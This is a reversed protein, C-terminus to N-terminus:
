VGGGHEYFEANFLRDIEVDRQAQTWAAAYIPAAGPAPGWLDSRTPENAPAPVPMTFRPNEGPGFGPQGSLEYM